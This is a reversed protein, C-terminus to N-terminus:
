RDSPWPERPDLGLVRAGPVWRRARDYRAVELAHIRLTNDLRDAVDELDTAPGAPVELAEVATLLEAEAAAVLGPSGQRAELSGACDVGLSRAVERRHTLLADVQRWAADVDGLRARARRWVWGWAVLTVAAAAVLVETM